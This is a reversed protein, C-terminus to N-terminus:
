SLITLLVVLPNRIITLVRILGGRKREQAIENPGIARAREEAEAQALGNLSTRLDPPRDSGHLLVNPPM